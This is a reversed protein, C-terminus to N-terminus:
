VDYNRLMKDIDDGTWPKGEGLLKARLAEEWLLMHQDKFKTVCESMHYVTYGLKELAVKLASIRNTHMAVLSCCFCVCLAKSNTLALQPLTSRLMFQGTRSFGLALVKMHM